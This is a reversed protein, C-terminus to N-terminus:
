IIYIYVSAFLANGPFRGPVFYDHHVDYHQGAAYHLVQFGRVNVGHMLMYQCNNIYILAM